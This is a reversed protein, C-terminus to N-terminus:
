GRIGGNRISLWVKEGRVIRYDLGRRWRWLVQGKVDSGAESRGRRVLILVTGVKRCVFADMDVHVITQTLDRTAEM